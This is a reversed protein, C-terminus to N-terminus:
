LTDAPSLAALVQPLSAATSVDSRGAALRLRELAAIARIMEALIRLQKLGCDRDDLDIRRALRRVQARLLLLEDVPSAHEAFRAIEVATLVDSYAGGATSPCLQRRASCKGAKAQKSKM